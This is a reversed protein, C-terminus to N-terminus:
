EKLGPKNYSQLRRLMLPLKSPQEAANDGETEVRLSREQIVPGTSEQNSSDIVSPNKQSADTVSPNEQSADTVSPNQQSPTTTHILPTMDQIIRLFKRNRTIVTNSEDVRITYKRGKAEVVTGHRNWRKTAMNQIAVKSGISIPHLNKSFTDYRQKIQNNREEVLRERNAAATLWVQHPRLQKPDVPISDRMNRHFLIQSPSLGIGKLPTNRYQLLAKAAKDNNVNGGEGLNEMLLRKASKVALEARGNGQAYGASSTVHEVKWQNLFFNMERSQFPLGGDTYLKEAAGYSAFVSRFMNILHKSTVATKVHYVLFWGSFRDVVVVYHSRGIQFADACIHQFPYDSSPLMQLPEQAQSPSIKNCSKCNIRTQKIDHNIGPWYVSNSARSRMGEIGQHASHLSRLIGTRLTRPIVLRNKFMVLGNNLWLHEKVNFFDRVGEDTLHRTPPFGTQIMTALAGMLSDNSTHSKVEDLTISEDMGSLEAIALEPIDDVEVLDDCDNDLFMHLCEKQPPNRSLADAARNWKGRNYM